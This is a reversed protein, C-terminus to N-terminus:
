ARVTVPVRQVENNAYGKLNWRMETPQTNGADDIARSCLVHSGPEPTKWEYRWHRWAWTSAQKGLEAERWSRGGDTSIEVITISGLGSWARGEILCPRAEVFRERSMFDPVGPPVMLSRPLMRTVPVGVDTESQLLRYANAQQYGSFPQSLCTIGQLWKVNTMGYWGPVILRLPYGHQPPLPQGNIEYALLVEDRKADAVALSREYTQELGSEVGRDLGSFLVEVVDERVEAQELVSRLPMGTWEASGVAEVMWPQSIPRPSLHARGNGACEMTVHLTVADMAHIDSLSLSFPHAVEGGVALRWSDADVVPIDYHTLLYHLGIPTVDYRLAELPIGHNRAALQLEDRSFEERPDLGPSEPAERNDQRRTV